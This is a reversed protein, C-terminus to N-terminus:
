KKEYEKLISVYAWRKKKRSEWEKFNNPELLVYNNFLDYKYALVKEELRCHKHKLITNVPFKNKLQMDIEIVSRM